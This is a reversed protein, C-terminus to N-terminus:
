KEITLKYIWKLWGVEFMFASKIKSNSNIWHNTFLIRVFPILDYKIYVNQKTLKTILKM